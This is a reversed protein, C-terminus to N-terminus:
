FGALDDPLGAVDQGLEAVVGEGGGSGKEDMVLIALETVRRARAPVVCGSDGSPSGGRGAGALRRGAVDPADAGVARVAQNSQAAADGRLAPVVRDIMMDGPGHRSGACWPLAPQGRGAGRGGRGTVGCRFARSGPRYGGVGGPVERGGGGPM